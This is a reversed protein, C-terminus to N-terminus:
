DGARNLIPISGPPLSEGIHDRPHREGEVVVVGLGAKALFAGVASGAPGGGMVVVDTEIRKSM